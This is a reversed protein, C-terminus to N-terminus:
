GEVARKRAASPLDLTVTYLSIDGPDTEIAFGLERCMDVMTTNERLVVGYLQELGEAAAYRILHRMLVWGLGRGKLDSRVIVAYEARTYDPDATLRAVGLLERRSGDLAVFAMARAYDIQTFRAIMRHSFQKTPSLFRMRIDQPALRRVFDDYLHEDAPRIPRVLVKEGKMTEAWAEWQSPYPRIVMRPNPGEAGIEEPLIRVRADLAVVGREDALLPNIDLERVAPCDIVLQSLGILTEAIADLDAPPRDRYGKLLRFISTDEILDRALKADLPPLAV